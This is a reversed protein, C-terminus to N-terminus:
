PFCSCVVCPVFLCIIFLYLMNMLNVLADKLGSLFAFISVEHKEMEQKWMAADWFDVGMDGWYTGVKLDTHRRV